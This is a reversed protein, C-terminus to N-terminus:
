GLLTTAQKRLVFVELLGRSDQGRWDDETRVRRSAGPKALRTYPQAHM